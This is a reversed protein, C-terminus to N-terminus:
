DTSVIRGRIPTRDLLAKRYEEIADSEIVECDDSVPFGAARLASGLAGDATFFDRVTLVDPYEGGSWTVHMNGPFTNGKTRVVVAEAKYVKGDDYVPILTVLDAWDAEDYYNTIYTLGQLYGM